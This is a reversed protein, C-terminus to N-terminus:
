KKKVPQRLITKLKEPATRRPDSLYIEHHKGNEIFGNEPLWEQHLRALTPGEDDYAGIHLIQAALGEHYPELQILELAPLEKGKGALEAAENFMETTIWEPTMIMMRWDWASKDINVSFSDMDEAWWLGELPPVTYDKGLLNKSAFKLKYAVAYLTEVAQQYAPAHNPDGHGEIQLFKMEAVDVIVFDDNKPQYLSSMTKKFDIKGTM